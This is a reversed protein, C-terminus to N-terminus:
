AAEKPNPGRRPRQNRNLRKIRIPSFPLLLLWLLSNARRDQAEKLGIEMAALDDPDKRTHTRFVHDWISLTAGNNSDTERHYSSHHVRHMDPTVILVRLARDLREPLRVNAHTFVNMGADFVEYLMLTVPSIGFVAIATRLIMLREDETKEWRGGDERRRCTIVVPCPRQALLRSLDIHRGIYDLRLEVLDAGEEALHKYEAIMM